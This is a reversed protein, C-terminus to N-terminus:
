LELVVVVNKPSSSLDQSVSAMGDVDVYDDDLDGGDFEGNM